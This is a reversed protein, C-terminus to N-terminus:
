KAMLQDLLGVMLFVVKQTRSDGNKLYKIRFMKLAISHTYGMYQQISM